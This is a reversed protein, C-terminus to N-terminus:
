WYGCSGQDNSKSTPAWYPSPCLYSHMRVSSPEFGTITYTHFIASLLNSIQTEHMGLLLGPLRYRPIEMVRQREIHLAKPPCKGFQFLM